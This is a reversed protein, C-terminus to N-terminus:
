QGYRAGGGDLYAQEEATSPRGLCANRHPFRGFRAIVDRHERAYRLWEALEARLPPAAEAVLREYLQVGREQLALHEAHQLPVYLFARRVPDLARDAGIDVGVAALAAAAPDGTFAAATGRFINRPLQDLLLILALRGEPTAPWADLEGRVAEGVMTTFRARCEADFPPEAAFWRVRRAAREAPSVDSPGFWFHVVAEIAAQDAVGRHRQWALAAELRDNGWFVEDGITFSPAGCLGRRAAEETQARLQAKVEAREAAALWPGPAQGLDALIAGLVAADAIDRDEAFNARYIRRVLEPVWPAEGAACIVRAALLSNRPFVSPRCLPIGEAACIRELDRWMYRGKVPYINFPSDRWGQAAFIPGLLFVRWRVPVGAAAALGGIRMAAPYSYTSALEFWLELPPGGGAGDRM